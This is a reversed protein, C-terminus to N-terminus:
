GKQQRNNSSYRKSIQEPCVRDGRSVTEIEPCLRFAVAFEVFLPVLHGLLQKSLSDWDLLERATDTTLDGRNEVIIEIMAKECFLYNEICYCPHIYLHPYSPLPLGAVWPLDGDILFLALRSGSYSEAKQVVNERGRLPIVTEIKITDGVLRNLLETYFVEGSEDEVFVDIDQLPRYLVAKSQLAREPFQPSQDQM